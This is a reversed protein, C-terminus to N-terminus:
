RIPGGSDKRLRDLLKRDISGSIPLQRAAEYKKIATATLPGPLGDIPGPDLAFAKLWTQLERVEELSLPREDPLQAISGAQDSKAAPASTATRPFPPTTPAPRSDPAVPTVQSPPAPSRMLGYLGLGLVAFLAIKGASSRSPRVEAPPTSPPGTEQPLATREAKRCPRRKGWKTFTQYSLGTGPLGVTKRIGKPGINMNAGRPGLGLSMGSGSFNLRIFKGLRVSKRFRLGM